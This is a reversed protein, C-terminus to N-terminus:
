GLHALALGDELDAYRKRVAAGSMTRLPAHVFHFSSGAKFVASHERLFRIEPPSFEAPPDLFLAAEAPQRALSVRAAERAGMARPAPSPQSGSAVLEYRGQVMSLSLRPFRGFVFVRLDLFENDMRRPEINSIEVRVLSRFWGRRLLGILEDLPDIV